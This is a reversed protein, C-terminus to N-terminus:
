GLLDLERKCAKAENTSGASEYMQLATEFHSKANGGDGIRAYCRGILQHILAPKHSGGLAVTFDRIAGRYDGGAMKQQAVRYINDSVGAESPNAGRSPEIVIRGPNTKQRTEIIDPDNKTPRNAAANTAPAGGNVNPLKRGNNPAIPTLEFNATLPPVNGMPNGVVPTRTQVPRQTANASPQPLQANQSQTVTTTNNQAPQTPLRFGQASPENNAIFPEKSAATQPRGQLALIVGLAIVVLAAAAASFIAVVNRSAIEIDRPEADDARKELQVLKIRDITSDPKLLVVQQYAAIAANLQGLEEHCMGKLAHATANEPQAELVSDAIFIAEAIKGEHVLRFGDRILSDAEEPKVTMAAPAELSRGCDKCFKSDASNETKCGKCIKM